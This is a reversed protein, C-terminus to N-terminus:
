NRGLSCQVGNNDITRENENKEKVNDCHSEENNRQTGGLAKLFTEM